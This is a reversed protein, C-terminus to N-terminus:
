VRIPILVGREILITVGVGVSDIHSEAEAPLVPSASQRVESWNRLEIHGVRIDHKYKEREVFGVLQSHVVRTTRLVSLQAMGDWPQADCGDVACYKSALPWYGRETACFPM